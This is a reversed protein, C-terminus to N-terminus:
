NQQSNATVKCINHQEVEVVCKYWLSQMIQEIYRAMYSAIQNINKSGM